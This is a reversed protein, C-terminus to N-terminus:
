ICSQGCVGYFIVPGEAILHKETSIKWDGSIDNMVVNGIAHHIQQVSAKEPEVGFM